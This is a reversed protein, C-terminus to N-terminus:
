ALRMGCSHFPPHVRFQLVEPFMRWHSPSTQIQQLMKGPDFIRQLCLDSKQFSQYRWTGTRVVIRAHYVERNVGCKIFIFGSAIFIKCTVM